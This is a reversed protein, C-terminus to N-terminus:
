IEELSHEYDEKGINEILPKSQDDLKVHVVWIEENKTLPMVQGPGVGVKGLLQADVVRGEEGKTIGEESFSNDRVRVRKGKKAKAEDETFTM